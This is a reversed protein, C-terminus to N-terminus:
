DCRWTAHYERVTGRWVFVSNPMGDNHGRVICEEGLADTYKVLKGFYKPMGPVPDNPGAKEISKVACGSLKFVEDESLGRPLTLSTELYAEYWKHTDDMLMTAM